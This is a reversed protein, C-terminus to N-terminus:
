NRQKNYIWCLQNYQHYVMDYATKFNGFNTNVSGDANFRVKDGREFLFNCGYYSKGVNLMIDEKDFVIIKGEEFCDELGEADGDARYEYDYKLYHARILAEAVNDVNINDGKPFYDLDYDAADIEDYPSWIQGEFNDGNFTIEDGFFDCSGTVLLEEAMFKADDLSFAPVNPVILEVTKYDDDKFDDEKVNDDDNYEEDEDEDEDALNIIEYTPLGFKALIENTAEPTFDNYEFYYDLTEQLNATDLKNVDYESLVEIFDEGCADCFEKICSAFTESEIIDWRCEVVQEMEDYLEEIKAKIVNEVEDINQWSLEVGDTTEYDCRIYDFKGAVYKGMDTNGSIYVDEDFSLTCNMHETNIEVDTSEWNKSKIIQKAIKTLNYDCDGVNITNERKTVKQAM